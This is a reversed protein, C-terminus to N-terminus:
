FLLSLSFRQVNNLKGYDVYAYDIMLGFGQNIKYSLGGGLSLGGELEQVGIGRYGARLFVTERFAYEMGFNLYENFDNPTVGDVSMTIRQFDTKIPDYALGVRFIIPIDYKETNLKAIVNPNNGKLNPDIDKFTLLDKGDMQMKGGYNSIAMGLRLNRFTTRYVIGVDMAMTSASEHWIQERIYKATLGFSFRETMNRAYSIGLAISSASFLEGTGEPKYETRVKMEGMTLGSYFLGFTGITQMPVVLGAFDYKIGAIWNTRVLMLQNGKIRAMGAPNWFIASADTVDAVQSEGMAAARAGIGIKLFQAATTGKKTIEGARILGFSVFLVIFILKYQVKM